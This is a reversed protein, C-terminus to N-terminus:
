LLLWHMFRWNITLPTVKGPLTRYAATSDCCLFRQCLWFENRIESPPVEYFLSTMPRNKPCHFYLLNHKKKKECIMVCMQVCTINCVTFVILAEFFMLFPVKMKSGTLATEQFIWKWRETGKENQGLLMTKVAPWQGSPWFLGSWGRFQKSIWTCVDAKIELACSNYKYCCFYSEKNGSRSERQTVCVTCYQCLLLRM